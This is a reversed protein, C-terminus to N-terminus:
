RVCVGETPIHEAIRVTEGTGRINEFTVDKLFDTDQMETLDVACGRVSDDAYVNRITVREMRIGPPGFNDDDANGRVVLRTNGYHDYNVTTLAHETHEAYIDEITSDVLTGCLTVAAGGSKTRVNKIRIHHMSGHEGAYKAFFCRQGLLITGYPLINEDDFNSEMINEIDLNYIKHGDNARLAIMSEHMSSAIVDRIIVDHIDTSKGKVMYRYFIASLAILDDGSNGFIREITIHHCGLRLNIGDQNSFLGGTKIRIDSIKGHSCFLFNLGWWRQNQITIGSVEFGDVNHFLVLNNCYISTDGEKRPTWEFIDNHGDGDLTANGVGLIKINKQEPLRDLYGDRYMNENRFINCEAKETLKLKCNDLIITFDSPLLIAEDILYEPKGTRPNVPPVTLTGDEKKALAVAARLMESDTSFAALDLSEFPSM